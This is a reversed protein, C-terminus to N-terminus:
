KVIIFEITKDTNVAQVLRWKLKFETTEYGKVEIYQKHGDSAVAVFDVIYSCILKGNVVLPIKLQRSWSTIEGAKLRWDLEEAYAAERKSHYKVGNYETIKAGYKNNFRM